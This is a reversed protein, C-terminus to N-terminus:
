DVKGLYQREMYVGVALFILMLGELMPVYFAPIQATRAMM